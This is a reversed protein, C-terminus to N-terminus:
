PRLLAEARASINDYIRKLYPNFDDLFREGDAVWVNRFPWSALADDRLKDALLAFLDRGRATACPLYELEDVTMIQVPMVAPQELWGRERLVERLRQYILNNTAVADLTVIVPYIRDLREAHVGLESVAGDRITEVTANLQESSQVFLRDFQDEYAAWDVSARVPLSFRSAKTEILVAANPGVLISDCIRARTYEKLKPELLLRYQPEAAIAAQLMRWVYDEFVRGIYNLYAQREDESFENRDLFLHHLGSTVKEFLLKVSTCLVVDDIEVLPTKAFPLFHYPRLRKKGYLSRVENKVEECRRAALGFIRGAQQESFGLEPPYYKDRHVYGASTEHVNSLDITLWHALLSFLAAWLKDPVLGTARKALSPLDVYLGDHALHTNDTLYLDFARALAHLRTDAHHFLGNALFHVHAKRLGDSSSVDLRDLGEPDDKILDTVMLLAEGLYHLSRTGRHYSPPLQRLAIKATNILQLEYFLQVAAPRAHNPLRHFREFANRIVKDADRGFLARCVHVHAEAPMLGNYHEILASIRGLVSLVEGLSYLTLRQVVGNWTARKGFVDEYGPTVAFYM